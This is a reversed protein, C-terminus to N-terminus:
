RWTLAGEGQEKPVPHGMGGGGKPSIATPDGNSPSLPVSQHHGPQHLGGFSTGAQSLGSLAEKGTLSIIFIGLGRREVMKQWRASSRLVSSGVQCITAITKKM